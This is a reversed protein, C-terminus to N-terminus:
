DRSKSMSNNMRIAKRTEKATPKVKIVKAPEIEFVMDETRLNLADEDNIDSACSSGSSDNSIPSMFATADSRPTYPPTQLKSQPIANFNPDVGVLVRVTRGPKSDELAVGLIQDANAKVPGVLNHLDDVVAVGDGRSIQYATIFEHGTDNLNIGPM